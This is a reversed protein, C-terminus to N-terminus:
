IHGYYKTCPVLGKITGPLFSTTSKLNLSAQLMLESTTLNHSSVSPRGDAKLYLTFIMTINELTYENLLWQSDSKQLASWQAYGEGQLIWTQTQHEL